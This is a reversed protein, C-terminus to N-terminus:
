SLTIIIQNWKTQAKTLYDLIAFEVVKSIKMGRESTFASLEQNSTSTTQITKLPTAATKEENMPNSRDM